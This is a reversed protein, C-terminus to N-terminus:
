PKGRKRVPEFAKQEVVIPDRFRSTASRRRNATDLRHGIRRRGPALTRADPDIKDLEHADALSSHVFRGYHKRLTTEAVGTQDSLWTLNVGATIAISVYTDKTAYLDRPRFGLVRVADRFPRYFSRQEIPQGLTNTFLYGEPAAHLEVVNRLVEVNRPTLRVIRNASPTKPAAEHGLSRSREVRRTGASLDLANNRVAVAESPRRLDHERCADVQKREGKVALASARGEEVEGIV